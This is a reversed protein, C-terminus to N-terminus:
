DQRRARRANPRVAKELNTATRSGYRRGWLSFAGLVGHASEEATIPLTSQVCEIESFTLRISENVRDFTFAVGDKYLPLADRLMGVVQERIKKPYADLFKRTKKDLGAEVGFSLLSAPAPVPILAVAIGVLFSILRRM